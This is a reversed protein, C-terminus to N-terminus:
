RSCSHDPVPPDHEEQHLPLRIFFCAGQPENPRYGLTGGHARVITNSIPLGLWFGNDQRTSFFPDLVLTRLDETVGPGNDRVSLELEGEPTQTAHLVISPESAPQASPQSVAAEPQPPQEAGVKSLADIANRLLNLLAQQIQERDLVVEPLGPTVELVLKIGLTQIEAEILMGVEQLMASVDTPAHRMENRAQGRLRDIIQSARVAQGTIKRLAMRLVDTDPSPQSMLRECAQSYNAIATLPQNLEHAIGAAMEGITALRSVDLMRELQPKSGLTNVINETTM